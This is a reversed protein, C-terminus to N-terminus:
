YYFNIKLYIKIVALARAHEEYILISSTCAVLPTFPALSQLAALPYVLEQLLHKVGISYNIFVQHFISLLDFITDYSLHDPVIDIDFSDYIPLDDLSM